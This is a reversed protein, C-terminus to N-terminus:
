YGIIVEYLSFIVYFIYYDRDVIFLCIKILIFFYYFLFNQHFVVLLIKKKLVFLSYKFNLTLNCRSQKTGFYYMYIVHAGFLFIFVIHPDIHRVFKM